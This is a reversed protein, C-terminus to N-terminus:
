EKESDFGSQLANFGSPRVALIEKKKHSTLTNFIDIRAQKNTDKTFLRNKKCYQYVELLEQLYYTFIFHVKLNGIRAGGKKPEFTLATYILNNEDLNEFERVRLTLDYEIQRSAYGYFEPLELNLISALKQLRFQTFQMLFDYDSKDTHIELYRSGVLYIPVDQLFKELEVIKVTYNKFLDLLMEITFAQNHM